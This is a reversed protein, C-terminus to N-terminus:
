VASTGSRDSSRFVFWLNSTNSANKNLMGIHVGGICQECTTPCLSAFADDPCAYRMLVDNCGTISAAILTKPDSSAAFISWLAVAEANNDYCSNYETYGCSVPCLVSLIGNTCQSPTLSGCSFATNNFLLAIANDNDVM